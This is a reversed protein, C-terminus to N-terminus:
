SKQQKPNYLQFYANNCITHSSSGYTTTIIEWADNEIMERKGVRVSSASSLSLSYYSSFLTTTAASAIKRNVSWLVCFNDKILSVPSLSIKKWQM